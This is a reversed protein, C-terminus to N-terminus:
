AIYLKTVPTICDDHRLGVVSKGYVSKGYEWIPSLPGKSRQTQANKHKM